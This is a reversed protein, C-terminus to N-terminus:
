RRCFECHGCQGGHWGVGVRQGVKWEVVDKEIEDIIGAVEHGPIRPYTVGPFLGQKMMSDSHCIGCAQVKIRVQTANPQPIDREVMEFPGNAKSVQVSYM